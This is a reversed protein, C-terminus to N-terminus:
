AGSPLDQFKGLMARIAEEDPKSRSEWRVTPIGASRLMRDREEDKETDHTRDDLEVVCLLKMDASYIAWDVRKQSIVRFAALRNYKGKEAPSILASMAVQPFVFLDPVARRLREFFECENVTMISLSRYAYQKPADKASDEDFEVPEVNPKDEPKLGEFDKHMLYFAGAAILLAILALFSM